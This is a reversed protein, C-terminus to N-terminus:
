LQIQYKIFDCFTNKLASVAFIASVITKFYLEKGRLKLPIQGMWYKITGFVHEVIAMRKSIIKKSRKNNMKKKFSDRWEQNEYCYIM